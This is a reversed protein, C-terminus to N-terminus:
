RGVKFPLLYPVRRQYERYSEGFTKALHREEYHAGIWFYLTMVVNLALGDLTLRPTFWIIVLSFFYLPHRMLRYTGGTVLQAPVAPEDQKALYRQAQRLGTFQWLDTQWLALLLGLFGLLRVLNVGHSYPLPILWVPTKPVLIVLFYVVPIFTAAAFLNYLLRYWGEYARVGMLRRITEKPGAAATISHAMAWLIFSVVFWIM